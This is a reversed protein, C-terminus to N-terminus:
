HNQFSEVHVEAKKKTDEGGHAEHWKVQISHSTVNDDAKCLEYKMYWSAISFALNGAHEGGRHTSAQKQLFPSHPTITDCMVEKEQSM